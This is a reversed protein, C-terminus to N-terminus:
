EAPCAKIVAALAQQTSRPKFVMTVTAKDGGVRVAFEKSGILDAVLDPSTAIELITDGIADATTEIVKKRDARFQVLFKDGLTLKWGGPTVVATTEGQLCRLGFMSDGQATVAVVNTTDAFPDRTTSVFWGGVIRKGDQAATAGVLVPLCATALILVARRRM